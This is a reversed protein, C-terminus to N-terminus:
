ISMWFVLGSIMGWLLVSSGIIIWIRVGISLSESSARLPQDKGTDESLPTEILKVVPDASRMTGVPLPQFKALDPNQAAIFSCGALLSSIWLIVATRFIDDSHYIEILEGVSIIAETEIVFDTCVTDYFEVRSLSDPETEGVSFIKHRCRDNETSTEFRAHTFSNIGFLM